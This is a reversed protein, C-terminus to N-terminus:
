AKIRQTLVGKLQNVTFEIKVKVENLMLTQDTANDDVEVDVLNVFPMWKEVAAYISDKVRQRVDTGQEFIVSRLNAGFDYHIPREGHNTIILIRLDDAVADITATNTDFAGKSSKKLPFKLNISGAM